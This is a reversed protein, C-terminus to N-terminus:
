NEGAPPTNMPATGAMKRCRSFFFFTKEEEHFLKQVLRLDGQQEAYTGPGHIPQTSATLQSRDTNAPGNPKIKLVDLREDVGVLHFDRLSLGRAQM